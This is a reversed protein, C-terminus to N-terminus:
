KFTGTKKGEETIHYLRGFSFRSGAQKNQIESNSKAIPSTVKWDNTRM